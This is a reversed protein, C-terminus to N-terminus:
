ASPRKAVLVDCPAHSVVYNAVSGMLLRPLGTRGHSGVIVLDAAHNEALTVIVDRPDGIEVCSVADFGCRHLDDKARASLKRHHELNEQHIGELATASGAGVMTYAPVQVPAVSVVIFRTDRPWSMEKVLRLAADSYISDDIGIIVKM